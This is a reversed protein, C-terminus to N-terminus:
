LARAAALVETAHGDAKVKRWAKALMGNENILFTSREIGMVTRGYLNKEKIVDFMKCVKEDTDSILEYNLKEKIKFKQHSASTDRSVGIVLTNIKRFANYLDRFQQAEVTCGSTLDKPYFFIAVKSGRADRLRWTGGDTAAATFDPIKKGLEIKVSVSKSM